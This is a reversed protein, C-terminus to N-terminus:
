YRTEMAPVPHPPPPPSLFDSTAPTRVITSTVTIPPPPLFTDTITPSRADINDTTPTITTTLRTANLEFINSCSTLLAQVNAYNIRPALWGKPRPRRKQGVNQRAGTAFDSYFFDNLYDVTTWETWTAMQAETNQPPM